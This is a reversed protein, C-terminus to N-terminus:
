DKKNLITFHTMGVKKEIIDFDNINFMGAREGAHELVFIGFSMNLVGQMLENYFEYGYPPDAFIIDYAGIGPGSRKLFGLVNEAIISVQETCGLEEATKGINAIQKQANEVFDCSEAGRSIFEFGIAGSGSFLDLCRTGDFDIINNLVNFITERARDTTPRYGSINERGCNNPEKVSNVRRSRFKGSIIRM